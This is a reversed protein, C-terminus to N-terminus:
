NYKLLPEDFKESSIMYGITSSLNSGEINHSNSGFLLARSITLDSQQLM